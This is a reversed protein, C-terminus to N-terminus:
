WPGEAVEIVSLEAINRRPHTIKIVCYIHGLNGETVEGRM